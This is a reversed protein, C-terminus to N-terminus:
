VNNVKRIPPLKIKGESNLAKLHKKLTNLSPLKNEDKRITNAVYNLTAPESVGKPFIRNFALLVDNKVKEGDRIKKDRSKSTRNLINARKIFEAYCKLANAEGMGLEGAEEDMKMQIKSLSRFYLDSHKDFNESRQIFYLKLSNWVHAIIGIAQYNIIQFNSKIIEAQPTVGGDRTYQNFVTRASIIRAPSYGTIEFITQPDPCAEPCLETLSPDIGCYTRLKAIMIQAAIPVTCPFDKKFPEKFPLAGFLPCWPIEFLNLYDETPIYKNGWRYFIMRVPAPLHYKFTYGEPSERLHPPFWPASRSVKIVQTEDKRCQNNKSHM